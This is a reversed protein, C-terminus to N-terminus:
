HPFRQGSVNCSLEIFCADHLLNKLMEVNKNILDFAAAVAITKKIIKIEPERDDSFNLLNSNRAWRFIMQSSILSSWVTYAIASKM